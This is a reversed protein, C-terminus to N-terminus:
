QKNDSFNKFIGDLFTLRFLGTEGNRNKALDFYATNRETLEKANRDRYFLLVYDADQELAGSDRLHELKPVDDVGKRNLQSLGLVAVQNKIAFRKLSGSIATLEQNRSEGKGTVLQLHDVVLLRIKYRRILLNARSLISAINGDGSDDVYLPCNALFSTAPIIDKGTELVLRNFIQNGTMELSVYGVPIGVRILNYCVGLAFATKGSSTAGALYMLDGPKFGEILNDLGIFGTKLRNDKGAMRRDYEALYDSAVDMFNRFDRHKIGTEITELVSFVESKIEQLDATELRPLLEGLRTYIERRQWYEILRIEDQHITASSIVGETMGTLYYSGGVKELDGSKKLRDIVALEDPTKCEANLGVIAQYIVRHNPDSFHKDQLWELRAFSDPDFLLIGLLERETELDRFKEIM